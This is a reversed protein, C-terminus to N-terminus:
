SKPRLYYFPRNWTNIKDDAEAAAASDALAAVAVLDEVWVQEMKDATVKDLSPFYTGTIQPNSFVVLKGVNDVNTTGKMEVVGAVTEGGKPTLSVAM